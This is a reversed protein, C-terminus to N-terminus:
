IQPQVNSEDIKVFARIRVQLQEPQLTHRGPVPRIIRLEGPHGDRNQVRLIQNCENNSTSHLLDGYHPM